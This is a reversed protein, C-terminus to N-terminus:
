GSAFKKKGNKNLFEDIGHDIVRAVLNGLIEGTQNSTFWAGNYAGKGGRKKKGRKKAM